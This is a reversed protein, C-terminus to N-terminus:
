CQCSLGKRFVLMHEQKCSQEGRALCIWHLGYYVKGTYAMTYREITEM